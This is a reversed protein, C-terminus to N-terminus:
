RGTSEVTSVHLKYQKPLYRQCMLLLLSEVKYALPRKGYVSKDADTVMGDLVDNFTYPDDQLNPIQTQDAVRVFAEAFEAFTMNM